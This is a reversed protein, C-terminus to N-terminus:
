TWQWPFTIFLLYIIFLFLIIFILLIFFFILFFIFFFIIIFFFFSSILERFNILQIMWFFEHFLLHMTDENKFIRICNWIFRIFQYNMSWIFENINLTLLSYLYWSNKIRIICVHYIFSLIMSIQCYRISLMSFSCVKM